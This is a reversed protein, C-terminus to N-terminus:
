ETVLIIQRPHVHIELILIWEYWWLRVNEFETNEQTNNRTFVPTHKGQSRRWTRRIRKKMNNMSEADRNDEKRKMM